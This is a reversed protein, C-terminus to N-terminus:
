APIVRDVVDNYTEGEAVDDAFFLRSVESNSAISAEYEGTVPDSNIASFSKPNDRFYILGQREALDGSADRVVGSIKKMVGNPLFAVGKGNVGLIQNENVSPGNDDVMSVWDSVRLLKFTEIQTTGLALYDGSSDFTVEVVTGLCNPTGSVISWDTTSYVFLRPSTISGVALLSGSPNFAVARGGTGASQSPTSIVDWTSTDLVTFGSGGNHAIALKTGDASFEVGYATSPMAPTTALITWDSTDFVSLCNDGVHAAALLTGSPNFAVGWIDGAILTSSTTLTWDTTSYIKLKPTWTGGVALIASDASFAVSTSRFGVSTTPIISGTNADVIEVFGSSDRSPLALYLGNSSVALGSRINYQFINKKSLAIKNQGDLYFLEKQDTAVALGYHSM